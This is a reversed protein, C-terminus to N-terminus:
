ISLNWRFSAVHFIDKAAVRSSCLFWCYYVHTICKRLQVRKGQHLSWEARVLNAIGCHRDYGRCVNAEVNGVNRRPLNSNGTDYNYPIYFVLILARDSSIAREPYHEWRPPRFLTLWFCAVGRARFPAKVSFLTGIQLLGSMAFGLTLWVGTYWYSAVGGASDYQRGYQGQLHWQNAASLSVLRFFELGANRTSM